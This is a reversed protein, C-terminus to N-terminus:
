GCPRLSRAVQPATNKAGLRDLIDGAEVYALAELHDPSSSLRALRGGGTLARVYAGTLEDAGPARNGADWDDPWGVVGPAVLPATDRALKWASAGGATPGPLLVLDVDIGAKKLTLLASESGPHPLRVAIGLEMEQVPQLLAAAVPACADAECETLDVGFSTFGSELCTLLHRRVAEFEQGRPNAVPPEEVHLVYPSSGSVDDAARAAAHFLPGPAHSRRHLDDISDPALTFGVVARLHAAARMVAPVAGPDAVAPMWLVAGTKAMAGLVLRGNLPIAAAAAGLQHMVNTPRLSLLSEYAM